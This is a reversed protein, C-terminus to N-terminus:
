SFALTLLLLHLSVPFTLSLSLTHQSRQAQTEGQTHRRLQTTNHSKPKAICEPPATDGSGSLGLASM